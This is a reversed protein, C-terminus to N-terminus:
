EPVEPMDLVDPALGMKELVADKLKPPYDTIPTGPLLSQVDKLWAGTDQLGDVRWVWQPYEPLDGIEHRVIKRILANLATCIRRAYYPASALSEREKVEGLSYSGVTAQLGLLAGENNFPTRIMQDCYDILAKFDPMTGTTGTTGVRIAGPLTLVTADLAGMEEIVDYVDDMEEDDSTTGGVGNLAAIAAPDEYIYTIPVGYKEAMVAAIQMLLQKFTIYHLSPRIPSIGEVNNGIANVNCLLLRHEGLTEGMAPITYCQNNSGIGTACEMGILYTKSEDFQWREVTSQERFQLDYVWLRTKGVAWLIEFPTFGHKLCGTAAHEIFNDWGSYINQIKTGHFLVLEALQKKHEDPCRKPMQLEWTGAVLTEVRENVADFVQPESRYLEEYLGPQGWSGRVYYPQYKPNHEVDIQGDWMATGTTGIPTQPTSHKISGFKRTMAPCVAHTIPEVGYKECLAIFQSTPKSM